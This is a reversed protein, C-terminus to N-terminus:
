PIIQVLYFHKSLSGHSNVAWRWPFIYYLGHVPCFHINVEYLIQGRARETNLIVTSSSVHPSSTQLGTGRVCLIRSSPVSSVAGVAGRPPVWHLWSACSFIRIVLCVQFSLFEAPIFWHLKLLTHPDPQLPKSELATAWDKPHPAANDWWEMMCRM